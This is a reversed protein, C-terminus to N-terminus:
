LQVLQFSRASITLGRRDAAVESSGTTRATASFRALAPPDALRTRARDRPASRDGGPLALRARIGTSVARRAARRAAAQRRLRHLRDLAAPLSCYRPRDQREVASRKPRRVVAVAPEEAGSAPWGPLAGRPPSRAARLQRYAAVLGILFPAVLVVNLNLLRAPCRISLTEAHHRAAAVDAPGGCANRSAPSQPWGCCSSFAPRPLDRAFGIVGRTMAVVTRNFMTGTDALGVSARTRMGCGNSRRFRDTSRPPM